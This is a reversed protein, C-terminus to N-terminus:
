QVVFTRSNSAALGNYSAQATAVYSGASTCSSARFVHAAMAHPEIVGAKQIVAGNPSFVELTYSAGAAPQGNFRVDVPVQIESGSSYLASELPLAVALTNAAAVVFTASATKSSGSTSATATVSFNYTGGSATAPSTLELTTLATAGPAVSALTSTTFSATWSTSPRAASLSFSQSACTESDNNKISVIYAGPTGAPLAASQASALTLTPTGRVCPAPTATPTPTPTTGAITVSFTAGSTTASALSISIGAGSDTFTQGVPLASKYWSGASPNMNLLLSSNGTSTSGTHVILGKTLNYTSSGALVSDFGIPQRYEVYYYTKAGSSSTSKLIKFAKPATSATEFPELTFTGTAAITPVSIWGLREKQFANYHGALYNGMSDTRDGYEVTSCSSGLTSTGCNHANSHYLGLNHGLEHAVTHMNLAANIWAKTTTGGVNALGLWSCGNKPFVFMRRKYVSLDVGAAAAASSAQDALTATDCASKSLSITYPGFTQGTIYTQNFSGEYWYNSTRTFVVDQVQAATYTNPSDSFSVLIVATKQEGTAGSLAQTGLRADLEEYHEVSLAVAESTTGCFMNEGTVRLRTGSQLEPAHGQFFLLYRQKAATTLVYELSEEGSTGLTALVELEGEVTLRTIQCEQASIPLSTQSVYELGQESCAATTSQSSNLEGETKCGTSLVCVAIGLPLLFRKM